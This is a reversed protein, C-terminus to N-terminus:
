QSAVALAGDQGGVALAGIEQQPLDSSVFEQPLTEPEAVELPQLEEVEKVARPITFSAVALATLALLHFIFSTAWAASEGDVLPVPWDHEANTLPVAAASDVTSM